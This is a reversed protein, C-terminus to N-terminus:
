WGMLIIFEIGQLRLIEIRVKKGFCSRIMKVMMFIKEAILHLQLRKERKKVNTIKMFSM